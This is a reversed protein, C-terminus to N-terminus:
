AVLSEFACLEARVGADALTRAVEDVYIANMVVVHRPELAAVDQPGLISRSTGPLYLGRKAPNGDVVGSVADGVDSLSLVALAKGGAQWLLVSGAEALTRLADHSRAIRETALRGFTLGELGEVSAIRASHALVGARAKEGRIRRRDTEVM